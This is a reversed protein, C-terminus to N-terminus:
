FYIAYQMGIGTVQTHKNNAYGLIDAAESSNIQLMLEATHMTKEIWFRMWNSLVNCVAYEYLRNATADFSNIVIVFEATHM